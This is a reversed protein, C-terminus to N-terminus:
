FSFNHQIGIALYENKESTGGIDGTTYFGFLKTDKGLRHDVGAPFPTRSAITSRTQKLPSAGYTRLSTSSSRPPTALSGPSHRATATRKPRM